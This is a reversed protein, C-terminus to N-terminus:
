FKTPLQKCLFCGSYNSNRTGHFYRVKCPTLVSNTRMSSRLNASGCTALLTRYMVKEILGSLVFETREGVKQLVSVRSRFFLSAVRTQATERM